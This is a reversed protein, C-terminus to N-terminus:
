NVGPWMERKEWNGLPNQVGARGQKSSLNSYSLFFVCQKCTGPKLGAGCGMGWAGHGQLSILFRFTIQSFAETGTATVWESKVVRM